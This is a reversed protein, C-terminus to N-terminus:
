CNDGPLRATYLGSTARWEYNALVVVIVEEEEEKPVPSECRICYWFYTTILKTSTPLPPSFSSFQLTLPLGSNTALFGDGVPWSTQCTPKSM